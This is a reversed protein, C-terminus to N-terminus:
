ASFNPQLDFNYDDLFDFDEDVPSVFSSATWPELDPHTLESISTDAALTKLIEQGTTLSEHLTKSAADKVPLNNLSAEAQAMMMSLFIYIKINTEGHWMRDKAYQVLRRAEQLLPEQRRRNRKKAFISSEAEPEPALALFVQLAGRTIIDRFMGGGTLLVARYTGDELLSIIDLAAELCVKQSHSYLPNTKAKISYGFHLSLSFRGLLHSSFCAAFENVSLQDIVNAAERCATSLDNGLAVVEEYTPEHYLSNIHTAVRMRLPLSKALLRQFCIKNETNQEGQTEDECELHADDIASPLQTNYDRESIMPLAGADLSIQVNLELITYWLRRRVERERLKMGGLYSPDQHLGIQMAMRVLSGASIWVLDAGVRNVQRSLLLLCQIQIGRILLRDKEVPGSLWTQGIYIWTHARRDMQGRVGVDGHLPGAITMILLLQVLFASGAAELNDVCGDYETKFACYDVIRYCYEFTNFYLYVLEDMVARSPFFRHVDKPLARRTPRQKKIERALKKCEAIAESVESFADNPQTFIKEYFEGALQM